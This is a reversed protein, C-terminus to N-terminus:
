ASTDQVLCHLVAKAKRNYLNSMWLMTAGWDKWTALAKVTPAFPLLDKQLVDTDYYLWLMM